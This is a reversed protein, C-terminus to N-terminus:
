RGRKKKAPKAKSKAAKKPKAKSKAKSKTKPKAKAAAKPKAKVSAKAKPAAKKKPKPKPGPKPNSGITVDYPDTGGPDGSCSSGPDFVNFGTSSGIPANPNFAITTTQGPPLDASSANFVVSNDFCLTCGNNNASVTFRAGESQPFTRSPPNCQWAGNVYTINFPQVPDPMESM